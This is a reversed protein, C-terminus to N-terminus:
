KIPINFATESVKRAQKYKPITVTLTGKDFEAHIERVQANEPLAVGQAFAAMSSEQAYFGQKNVAAEKRQRAQITLYGDKVEIKIDEKDLGPLNITIINAQDTEKTTMAAVFFSRNKKRIIREPQAQADSVERLMRSAPPMRYIQRRQGLGVLYGTELILLACLVALITVLIKSKM